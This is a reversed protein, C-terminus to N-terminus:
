KWEMEAAGPPKKRCGISNWDREFTLNRRANGKGVIAETGEVFGAEARGQHRQCSDRYKVSLCRSPAANKVIM